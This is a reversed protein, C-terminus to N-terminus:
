IYGFLHFFIDKNEMTKLVKLQKSRELYDVLKGNLKRSLTTNFIELVVIILFSFINYAHSWVWKAQDCWVQHNGYWAVM